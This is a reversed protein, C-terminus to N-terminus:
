ADAAQVISGCYDCAAADEGVWEVEGPHVTGGCAPCKPPLRRARKAPAPAAPVPGSAAEVLALWADALEGYGRERMEAALSPAAGAIRHLKGFRSASEISRRLDQMAQETQGSLICARGALLYLHSSQPVGAAEGVAALDRLEGAASAYEGADLLRHAHRLM